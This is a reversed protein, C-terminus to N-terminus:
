CGSAPFFSYLCTPFLFLFTIVMEDQGRSVARYYISVPGGPEDPPCLVLDLRGQFLLLIVCSCLFTLFVYLPPLPFLSPTPALTPGTWCSMVLLAFVMLVIM